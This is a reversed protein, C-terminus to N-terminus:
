NGGLRLEAIVVRVAGAYASVSVGRPMFGTTDLGTTLPRILSFSFSWAAYLRHYRRLDESPSNAFSQEVRDSM